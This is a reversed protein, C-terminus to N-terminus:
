PPPPLTLPAVRSWFDDKIRPGVFTVKLLYHGPPLILTADLHVTERPEMWLETCRTDPNEYATALDIENIRAIKEAQKEDYWDIPTDPEEIRLRRLQLSCSHKLVEEADKYVPPKGANAALKSRGKNTLAVDVFVRWLAGSPQCKSRIKIALVSEARREIVFRYVAWLGGAIAAAAVTLNQVVESWHTDAM